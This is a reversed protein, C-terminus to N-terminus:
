EILDTTRTTMATTTIAAHWLLVGVGDGLGDDTTSGDLAGVLVGVLVGDGVGFVGSPPV